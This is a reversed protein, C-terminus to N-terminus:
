RESYRRIVVAIAIAFGVFFGALALPVVVGLLAGLAAGAGTCLGNVALMLVGAKAADAATFASRPRSSDSQRSAPEM